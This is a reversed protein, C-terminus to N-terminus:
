RGLSFVQAKGLKQYATAVQALWAVEAAFDRADREEFGNTGGSGAPSVGTRKAHLAQRIRAAEVFAQRSEESAGSDASLALTTVASHDIYPRLERWGDRIEVVRRHLRYHLDSVQTATPPELVIDPSSEYLDRWLPYLARYAGYSDAWRLVKSSSAGWSSITLSLSVIIIGLASFVSPALKWQGIGVGFAATLINVTRALCYLFLVVAGASLLRLSRRLWPKTTMRAYPGCQRFITVCPVAQSVIFILLYTLILPHDSGTDFASSPKDPGGAMFFLATLLVDLVLGAGVWYAVKRRAEEMTTSWRLLIVQASICFAVASLHMLLIAMNGIGLLSKSQLAVAGMTFTLSQLLLTIVLTRHASDRWSRHLQLLRYLLAAYSSLAAILFCITRITNM